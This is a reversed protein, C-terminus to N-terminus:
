AFIGGFIYSSRVIEINMITILDSLFFQSLVLNNKIYEHKWVLYVKCNITAIM